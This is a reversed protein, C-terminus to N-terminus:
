KRCHLYRETPMWDTMVAVYAEGPFSDCIFDGEGIYLCHDCNAPDCVWKPIKRKRFVKVKM